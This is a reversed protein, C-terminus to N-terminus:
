SRVEPGPRVMVSEGQKIVGPREVWGVLGRKGIAQKPFGSTIGPKDPYQEQLSGGATTCPANAGEVVVSAGGEFYFRTGPPLQTLDPVGSVVINAGVWEGKVEPLDMNKAIQEMEEVSMIAVQRVNRIETGKPHPKQASNAQMTLGYHKEGVIGEWTLEIQESLTSPLLQPKVLVVDVKGNMDAM